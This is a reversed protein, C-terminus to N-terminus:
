AEKCVVQFHQLRQVKVNWDRCKYLYVSHSSKRVQLMFKDEDCLQDVPRRDREYQKYAKVKFFIIHFQLIHPLKWGFTNKWM